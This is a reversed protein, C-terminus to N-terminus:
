TPTTWKRVTHGTAITDGSYSDEIQRLRDADVEVTRMEMIIGNRGVRPNSQALPRRM